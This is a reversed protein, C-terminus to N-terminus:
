SGVLGAGFSQDKISDDIKKLNPIDDKAVTSNTPDSLWTALKENKNILDDYENESTLPSKTIEDYSSAVTQPSLGTKKSIELSKAMREPDPGQSAAFVSKKLKSKISDKEGSIVDDYENASQNDLIEDYENAM